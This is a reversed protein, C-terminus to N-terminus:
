RVITEEFLTENGLLTEDMKEWIVDNLVFSLM